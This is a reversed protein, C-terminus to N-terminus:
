LALYTELVTLRNTLERVERRFRRIKAADRRSQNTSFFSRIPNDTLFALASFGFWFSITSLIYVAFDIVNLRPIYNIIIAVNEGKNLTFVLQESEMKSLVNLLYIQENCDVRSCVKECTEAITQQTSSLNSNLIDRSNLFEGTLNISVM